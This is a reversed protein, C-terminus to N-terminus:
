KVAVKFEVDKTVPACADDQCVAFKLQGTFAKDGAATPTFAVEMECGNDDLRLLDDKALTDKALTVDSPSSVALSTPYDLNMHWPDKPVITVKVKGEAGVAADAPPEIKLDFREDAPDAGDVVKTKEAIEPKAADAPAAGDAPKAAEADKAPASTEKDGGCGVSAGLTLVLSAILFRHTM